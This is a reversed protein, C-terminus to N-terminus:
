LTPGVPAAPWRRLVRYAGRITVVYVSEGPYVADYPAPQVITIIRPQQGRIPALQVIIEQAETRAFAHTSREGLLGGLVAGATNVAFRNQNKSQTALALGLASGVAAGAARAQNSPEVEKISIQLVVGELTDGATQVQPHAYINGSQAKADKPIVFALVLAALIYLAFLVRNHLPESRYKNFLTKM